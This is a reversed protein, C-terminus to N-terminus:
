LARAHREQTESLELWCALCFVEHFLKGKGCRACFGKWFRYRGVKTPIEQSNM